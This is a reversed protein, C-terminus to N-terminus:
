DTHTIVVTMLHTRISIFHAWFTDTIWVRVMPVIIFKLVPLLPCSSFVTVQLYITITYDCWSHGTGPSSGSCHPVNPTLGQGEELASHFTRCSVVCGMRGQGTGNGSVALTFLGDPLFTFKTANSCLNHDLWVSNIHSSSRSRSQSQYLASTYACKLEWNCHSINLM